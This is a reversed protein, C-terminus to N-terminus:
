TEDIRDASNIQFDKITRLEYYVAAYVLYFILYTAAYLANSVLALSLPSLIALEWIYIIILRYFIFYNVAYAFAVLLLIKLRSGRTLELSRRISAVAGLGEMLCAPVAVAFLAGLVIDPLARPVVASSGESLLGIILGLGLLPWVVGVVRRVAEKLSGERRRNLEFIYSIILAQGLYLFVYCGFLLGRHVPSSWDGGILAWCVLLPINALYALGYLNVPKKFFTTRVHGLAALISLGPPPAESPGAIM